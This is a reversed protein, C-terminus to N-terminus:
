NLLVPKAPTYADQLQNTYLQSFEKVLAETSMKHVQGEAYGHRTLYESTVERLLQVDPDPKPAPQVTQRARTQTPANVIFTPGIKLTSM